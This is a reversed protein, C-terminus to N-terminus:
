RCCTLLGYKRFTYFRLTDAAIMEDCNLYNNEVYEGKNLKVSPKIHSAAFSNVM